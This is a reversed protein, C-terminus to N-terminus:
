VFGPGVETTPNSENLACFSSTEGDPGANSDFGGDDPIRQLYTHAHGQQAVQPLQGHGEPLSAVCDDCYNFDDSFAIRVRIPENARISSGPPELRLQPTSLYTEGGVYEAAGSIATSLLATLVLFIRLM